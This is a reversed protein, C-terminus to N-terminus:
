NNIFWYKHIRCKQSSWKICINCSKFVEDYKNLIKEEFHKNCLKPLINKCYECSLYKDYSLLYKYYDLINVSTCDICLKESVNKYKFREFCNTCINYGNRSTFSYHECSNCIPKNELNNEDLETNMIDTCNYCYSRIYIKREKWGWKAKPSVIICDGIKYKNFNINKNHYEDYKIFEHYSQKSKILTQQRRFPQLLYYMINKYIENPLKYIENISKIKKM